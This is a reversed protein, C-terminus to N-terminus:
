KPEIGLKRMEAEFEVLFEDLAKRTADSQLDWMGLASDGKLLVVRVTRFGYRVEVKVWEARKAGATTDHIAQDLRTRTFAWRDFIEAWVAKVNVFLHLRDAKDHWDQTRNDPTSM